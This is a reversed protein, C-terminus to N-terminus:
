EYTLIRLAIEKRFFQLRPNSRFITAMRLVDFCLAFSILNHSAKVSTQRERVIEDYKLLM